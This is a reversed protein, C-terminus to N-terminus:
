NFNGTMSLGLINTLCNKEDSILSEHLSGVWSKISQIESGISVLGLKVSKIGVYFNSAYPGSGSLLADRVYPDSKGQGFELIPEAIEFIDIKM